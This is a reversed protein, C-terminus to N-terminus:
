REGYSRKQELESTIQSSVDRKKQQVHLSRQRDGVRSAIRNHSRGSLCMRTM